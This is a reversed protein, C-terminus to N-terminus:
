CYAEKNLENLKTHEATTRNMSRKLEDMEDDIDMLRVLLKAEKRNTNLDRLLKERELKLHLVRLQLETSKM